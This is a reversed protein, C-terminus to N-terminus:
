SQDGIPLDLRQWLDAAWESLRWREPFAGTREVVGIATLDELHRRATTEPLCAFGSAAATSRDLPRGTLTDLVRRRGGT